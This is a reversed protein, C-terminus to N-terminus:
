NKFSSPRKEFLPINENISSFETDTGTIKLGRVWANESDIYWSFLLHRIKVEFQGRILIEPDRATNAFILEFLSNEKIIGESKPRILQNLSL